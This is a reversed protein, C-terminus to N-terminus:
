TTPPPVLSVEATGINGCNLCERATEAVRMFGPQRGNQYALGRHAYVYPQYAWNFYSSMYLQYAPLAAKAEVTIHLDVAGPEVVEYVGRVDAQHEDHTDFEAAEMKLVSGAPIM